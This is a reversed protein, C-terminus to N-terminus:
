IEYAMQKNERCQVKEQDWQKKSQRKAHKTNTKHTNHNEDNDHSSYIFCMMKM